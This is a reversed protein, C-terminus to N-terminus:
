LLTQHRGSPIRRQVIPASGSPSSHLVIRV